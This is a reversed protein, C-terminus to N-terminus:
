NEDEEEEEQVPTAPTDDFMEENNNNNNNNNAHSISAIGTVKIKKTPTASSSDHKNKSGRSSAAQSKLLSAQNTAEINWVSDNILGLMQLLKKKGKQKKKFDEVFSRWYEDKGLTACMRKKFNKLMQLFTPYQSPLITVLMYDTAMIFMEKIKEPYRKQLSDYLSDLREYAWEQYCRKAYRQILPLIPTLLKFDYEDVADYLSELLVMQQTLETDDEAPHPFIEICQKFLGDKMLLEIKSNINEDRKMVFVVLEEKIAAWEEESSLNRIQDWKESTTDIKFSIITQDRIVEGLDEFNASKIMLDTIKLTFSKIEEYSYRPKINKLEATMRDISDQIAPRQALDQVHLFKQQNSKIEKELREKNELVDNHQDLTKEIITGVQIVMLYEKKAFLDNAFSMMTELSKIQEICKKVTTSVKESFKKRDSAVQRLSDESLTTINSEFNMKEKSVSGILVKSVELANDDVNATHFSPLLSNLKETYLIERLKKHKEVSLRRRQKDLAEKEELIVSKERELVERKAQSERFLVLKDFAFSCVQEVLSFEKKELLYSTLSLFTAPDQVYTQVIQMILNIREKSAALAIDSEAAKMEANAIKVLVAQRADFVFKIGALVMQSHHSQDALYDDLYPLAVANLENRTNELLALDEDSMDKKMRTLEALEEELMEVLIKKRKANLAHEYFERLKPHFIKAIDVFLSDNKPGLEKALKIISHISELNSLCLLLAEQILKQLTEQEKVLDEESITKLDFMKRKRIKEEVFHLCDILSNLLTTSAQYKIDDYQRAANLNAYHPWVPLAEIEAELQKKKALSEASNDRKVNATATELSAELALRVQRASEIENTRKFIQTIIRTMVQDERSDKMHNAFKMLYTPDSFKELCLEVLQNFQQNVLQKKATDKSNELNKKSLLVSSIMVQAVELHLNDYQNRATLVGFAPWEPLAAIKEQLKLSEEQQAALLNKGVQRLKKEEALLADLSQQLPLRVERLKELHAIHQQCREGYRITADNEGHKHVTQALKFIHTPDLITDLADNLEKDINMPTKSTTKMEIICSVRLEANQLLFDNHTTTSIFCHTPLIKYTKAINEYETLETEQATPHGGVGKITQIDQKLETIRKEVKTREGQAKKLEDMRIRARETVLVVYNFQKLGLLMKGIKLIGEPHTLYTPIYFEILEKLTDTQLLTLDFLERSSLDQKANVKAQLSEINSFIANISTEVIEFSIATLDSQSKKLIDLERKRQLHLKQAAVKCVRLCLVALKETALFKAVKLVMEPLTLVNVAYDIFEVFQNFLPEEYDVEETPAAAQKGDHIMADEAATADQLAKKKAACESTYLKYASTVLLLSLDALQTQQKGFGMKLKANLEKYIDNRRKIEKLTQLEEPTESNLAIPREKKAKEIKAITEADIKFIEQVKHQENSQHISEEIAKRTLRIANNPEDRTNFKKAMDELGEVSNNDLIFSFLSEDLKDSSTTM